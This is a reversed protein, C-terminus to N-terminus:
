TEAVYNECRSVTASVMNYLTAEEGIKFMTSVAACKHNDDTAFRYRGPVKFLFYVKESDHVCQIEVHGYAGSSIAGTLPTKFVKISDWDDDSGDLTPPTSVSACTISDISTCASAAQGAALSALCALVNKKTLIM